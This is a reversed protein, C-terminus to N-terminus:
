GGSSCRTRWLLDRHHAQTEHIADEKASRDLEHLTVNLKFLQEFM